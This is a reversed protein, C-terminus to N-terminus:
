WNRPFASPPGPPASRAPPTRHGAGPAPTVIRGHRRGHCLPQWGPRRWDLLWLHPFPPRSLNPYHEALARAMEGYIQPAVDWITIDFYYLGTRVEDTVRPKDSRSRDTVWLLTIEAQLERLIAEEEGPTLDRADLETLAHAIRRLKALVTRRKAQTPHATFVLEIHLRELLDRMEFEDVGLLRLREIAEPISEGLPRPHAQRERDRLVRVRHQEEALNILEFYLTFSRAVQEVEELSIENVLHQIRGDVAADPEIRRAKALARIREVLEYMEIGAQRRIVRGLQDGLLHIDYSLKERLEQKM